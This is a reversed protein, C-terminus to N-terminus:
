FTPKNQNAKNIQDQNAKNAAAASAGKTVTAAHVAYPLNVLEVNYGALM